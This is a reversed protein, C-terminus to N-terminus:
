HVECVNPETPLDNGDLKQGNSPKALHLCDRSSTSWKLVFSKSYQRTWVSHQSLQSSLSIYKMKYNEGSLLGTCRIVRPEM